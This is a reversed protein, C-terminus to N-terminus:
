FRKRASLVYIQMLLLRSFTYYIYVLTREFSSYLRIYVSLSLSAEEIIPDNGYRYTIVVSEGRTGRETRFFPIGRRAASTTGLFDSIYVAKKGGGERGRTIDKELTTERIYMYVCVVEERKIQHMTQKVCMYAYVYLTRLLYYVYLINYRYM